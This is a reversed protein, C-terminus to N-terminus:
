LSPNEFSFATAIISSLLPLWKSGYMSSSNKFCISSISATISVPYWLSSDEAFSVFLSDYFSVFIFSLILPYATITLQKNIKPHDLEETGTNTVIAVIHISLGYICLNCRNKPKKFNVFFSSKQKFYRQWNTPPFKNNLLSSNAIICYCIIIKNVHLIGIHLM